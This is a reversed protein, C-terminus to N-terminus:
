GRYPPLAKSGNCAGTVVDLLSECPRSYNCPIDSRTREERHFLRREAAIRTNARLVACRARRVEGEEIAALQTGTTGRLMHDSIILSVPTERLIHIAETGNTASLVLFGDNELIRSRLQLQAKDDDICLIVPKARRAGCADALALYFKERPTLERGLQKSLLEEQKGLATHDHLSSM